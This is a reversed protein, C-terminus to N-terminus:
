RAILFRVPMSFKNKQAVPLRFYRQMAQRLVNRARSLRFSGRPTGASAAPLFGTQSEALTLFGEGSGSCAAAARSCVVAM